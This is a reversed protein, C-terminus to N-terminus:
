SIELRISLVAVLFFAERGVRPSQSSHPPPPPPFLLLLLLLLFLLLVLLLPPGSSWACSSMPATWLAESISPTSAQQPASGALRCSVTAAARATEGHAAAAVAAAAATTTTAGCTRPKPCPKGPRSRGPRCTTRGSTSTRALRHTACVLSSEQLSLSRTDVTEPALHRPVTPHESCEFAELPRTFQRQPHVVAHLPLPLVGSKLSRQIDTFPIPSGSAGSLEVRARIADLEQLIYALVGCQTTVVNLPWVSCPPWMSSHWMSQSRPCLSPLCPTLTHKANFPLFLGEPRRPHSRPVCQSAAAYGSAENHQHRTSCNGSTMLLLLLAYDILTQM